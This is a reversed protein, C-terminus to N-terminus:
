LVIAIIFILYFLVWILVIFQLVLRVMYASSITGGELHKNLFLCAWLFGVKGYLLEDPLNRSLKIERFQALYYSVSASDGCHKAAVAGLACVGARGCM